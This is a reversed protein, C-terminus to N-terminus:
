NPRSPEIGKYSEHGPEGLECGTDAYYEYEDALAAISHGMEHLVINKWSEMFGPQSSTVAIDPGGSGGRSSNVIVLTLDAHPLSRVSSLTKILFGRDVDLLRFVPAGGACFTADFYTNVYTGTGSTGCIPEDAGSQDSIVDLRYINNWEM